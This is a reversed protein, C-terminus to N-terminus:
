HLPLSNFEAKFKLCGIIIICKM